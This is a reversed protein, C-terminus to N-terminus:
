SIKCHSINFFWFPTCVYNKMQFFLCFLKGVFEFKFRNYLFVTIEYTIGDSNSIIVFNHISLERDPMLRFILDSIFFRGQSHKTRGRSM